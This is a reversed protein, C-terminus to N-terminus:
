KMVKKGKVIYIGKPLGDYSTAQSKVKLGKLNFVDFTEGDTLEVCHIGSSNKIPRINKFERWVPAAKYTEVCGEPVYLTANARNTFTNGTIVLPTNAEVSVSTLYDCNEFALEGIKTVSNPIKISTLSSCWFAREGLTTIWNPIEFDSLNIGRFAQHGIITVTNPIVTNKCGSVLTNTATEIIANCSDRSDYKPNGDEVKISTLYYCEKLAGLGGEQGDGYHTVSKPLTFSTLCNCDAFADNEITTLTSPMKISTLGSWAFAGVEITTVGEPLTVDGLETCNYFAESGIITTGAPVKSSRLGFILKTGQMLVNSSDPSSFTQNGEAVSLKSINNPGDIFRWGISSVNKPIELSKLNLCYSFVYDGISTLNNPLIVEELKYCGAFLLQGLINNETEYHFSNEGIYPAYTGTPYTINDTDLYKEGGAVIDAGSLDLEKLSGKTLQGLYNNGAMERILRLDTGNLQGTLTLKTITFPDVEDEMILSLLGGAPVNTYTREIGDACVSSLGMSLSLLLLYIKKM